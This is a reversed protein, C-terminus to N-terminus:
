SKVRNSATPMQNLHASTASNASACPEPGHVRLPTFTRTREEAGVTQPSACVAHARLNGGHLHGRNLSSGECTSNRAAHRKQEPSEVKPPYRIHSRRSLSHVQRGM